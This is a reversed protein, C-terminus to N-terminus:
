PAEGAARSTSPLDEFRAPVIEIANIKPYGVTAILKIIIQGGSAVVPFRLDLARFAGGAARFIDLNPYLESGNIYVSFIRKEPATWWLEAFKLVVECRGNPVLFNYTLTGSSSYHETQYLKTDPTGAIETDTSFGNGESYGVDALWLQGKSDVLGDGGADVRIPLSTPIVQNRIAPVDSPDANRFSRWFVRRFANQDVSEQPICPIPINWCSNTSNPVWIKTGASAAIQTATPRPISRMMQWGGDSLARVNWGAIAAILVVITGRRRPELGPLGTLSYSLWLLGLSTLYGNGFRPDPAAWFWYGICALLVATIWLFASDIRKRAVAYGTIVLGALVLIWILDHIPEKQKVDMWWSSFWRWDALTAPYNLTSPDRAYARIGISEGEVQKASVSWPLSFVCTQSIPYAVCGSLLLSRATWLVLGATAILIARRTPVVRRIGIVLLTALLIVAASLKVMVAFVGLLLFLAPTADTRVGQIYEIFLFVWYVELAAAMGDANLIGLWGTFRSEVTFFAIVLILFWFGIRPIENSLQHDRLRAFCALLVFSATICNVIWGISPKDMLPSILFLISNFGLRGHLNAAGPTVPADTIWRLVQMHYLGNDYTAINNPHVLVCAFALLAFGLSGLGGLEPYVLLLLILGSLLLAYCIYPSIPFFFNLSLTVMGLCLLGLLGRDGVNPKIQLIRALLSGSGVASLGGLLILAIALLM